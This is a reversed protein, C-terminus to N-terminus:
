SKSDTLRIFKSMIEGHARKTFSYSWPRYSGNERRKTLLEGPSPRCVYGDYNPDVYKVPTLEDLVRLVLAPDNAHEPLTSIEFRVRVRGTYPSRIKRGPRQDYFIKQLLMGQLTQRTVLWITWVDRNVNMVFPQGIEYLLIKCKYGSLYPLKMVDAVLDEDLLGEQILLKRMPRLQDRHVIRLLPVNWPEGVDLQLDKGEHFQAISDCIRFRLEGSLPSLRPDRRYYMTGRTKPPFHIPSWPKMPSTRYIFQVPDNKPGVYRVPSSFDSLDLVQQGVSTMREPSLTLISREPRPGPGRSHGMGFSISSSFERLRNVSVPRQEHGLLSRCRKEKWAHRSFLTSSTIRYAFQRSSM